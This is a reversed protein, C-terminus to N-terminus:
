FETVDEALEIVDSVDVVKTSESLKKGIAVGSVLMLVPLAAKKVVNWATGFFKKEKIEGDMMEIEEEIVGMDDMEVVEVNESVKKSM